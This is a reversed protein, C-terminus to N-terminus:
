LTNPLSLLAWLSYGLWLIAVFSPVLFLRHRRGTVWQFIGALSSTAGFFLVSYFLRFTATTFEPGGTWRRPGPNAIVQNMWWILGAMGVSLLVGIILLLVGIRRTKSESM